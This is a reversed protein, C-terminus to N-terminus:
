IGIKKKLKVIVEDELGIKDFYNMVDGGYVTDIHNLFIEMNIRDSRLTHKLNGDRVAILPDL